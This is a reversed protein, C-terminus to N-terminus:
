KMKKAHFERGNIRLIMETVQGSAAKMFAVSTDHFPDFSDIQEGGVARREKIPGM